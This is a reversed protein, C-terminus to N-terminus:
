ILGTPPQTTHNGFFIAEINNQADCGNVPPCWRHCQLAQVGDRISPVGAAMPQQCVSCKCRRATYSLKFRRARNKAYPDAKIREILRQEANLETNETNM